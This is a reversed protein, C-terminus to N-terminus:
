PQSADESGRSLCPQPQTTLAKPPWRKNSAGDNIKHMTNINNSVSPYGRMGRHRSYHDPKTLFSNRPLATQHFPRVNNEIQFIKDLQMADGQTTTRSCVTNPNDKGPDEKDKQWLKVPSTFFLRQDRCRQLTSGASPVQIEDKQFFREEETIQQIRKPTGVYFFHKRLPRDGLSSTWEPEVCENAAEEDSTVNWLAVDGGRISSRPQRKM